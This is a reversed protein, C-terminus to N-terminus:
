KSILLKTNYNIEPSAIKMFYVGNTLNKTIITEKRGGATTLTGNYVERGAIDTITIVAPMTFGEACVVSINDSAPNPYVSLASYGGVCDFGAAGTSDAFKVLFGDMTGGGFAPQHCGVTSIGTTSGTLGTFYVCNHGAVVGYSLDQFNGGYYTSWMMAGASTLKALYADSGAALTAQYAGATAIGSTSYTYGSIFVNGAADAAVARGQDSSPGGYYTGWSRTGGANFKAVFADASGGAITAQYAGVSAIGSASGTTGTLFVNGSADTAVGNGFDGNPGGYYTGWLRSGASNFKVLFADQYGGFTTQWAGVSSIATTSKTTGALFANGSVDTTVSYAWDTSDGGVYTGWLRNGAGDFKALYADTTDGMTTQWAGVSAIGSASKTGGGIYVNGSPDTAVAGTQVDDTNAGGYYTGWLRTGTGDFKALYGDSGGGGMAAQWAGVSSMGTASTTMGGVFVNGTADVAVGDGSENGTGGYYTGWQRVGSSNFKILYTDWSGAMALQFAGATAIASLSASNGSIFVNGSADKAIACSNDHDSGGYYTAWSLTPDITISGTHSAVDYSLVNGALKFASRIEQGNANFTYPAHETITGQQTTAALSGDAGLKLSSAGSYKLKIDSVKGGQKVVFEHKLSGDVTYLVWDIAPYVDKYVVKGFTHVLAGDNGTGPTYYHEYYPQEESTVVRANKNAGELEVDMRYMSFIPNPIQSESGPIENDAKYFQYHIAGGGIFVNMGPGGSVSFQIDHRPQYYQDTIQGKNEKFALPTPPVNNNGPIRAYANCFTYTALFALVLKKM